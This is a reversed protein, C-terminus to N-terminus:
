HCLRRKWMSITSTVFARKKILTKEYAKVATRVNDNQQNQEDQGQKQIQKIVYHPYNNTEFLVKVIYKLEKRLLDNTYCVIYAGAVLTKLTGRQWTDPAFANWYLYIDNSTVKQFLTIVTKCTKRKNTNKNWVFNESRITRKIAFNYALFLVKLNTLFFSPCSM